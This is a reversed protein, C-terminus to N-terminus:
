GPGVQVASRTAGALGRHLASREVKARAARRAADRDRFRDVIAEVKLDLRDALFSFADTLLAMWHEVREGDFLDSDYQLSGILGEPTDLLNLLLELQATSLEITELRATVGGLDLRPPPTNQLVVKTQFVPSRGHARGPALERVLVEFPLASHGYAGLCVDRVAHLLERLTADDRWRVRLPLQNVFFGILADVGPENRNASDTGIVVDRTGSAHGLVLAFGALALMFLTVGERRAQDRMRETLDAPVSLPPHAGRFRREGTRARDTPLDLWAPAGRLAERWYALGESAATESWSERQGRAFDVFQFPLEPLAPPRGEVAARYLECFEAMFVAIAWGDCCVHHMVGVAVHHDPGLRLLAFRLHPPAALDFRHAAIARARRQVERDREEPALDSLDIREVPVAVHSRVRQVVEGDGLEYSTRLVEHRRVIAAISSQVAGHDLPGELRIAAPLNLVPNGPDAQDAMWIRQQSFSVPHLTGEAAARELEARLRARKDAVLDVEDHTM